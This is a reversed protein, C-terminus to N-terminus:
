QSITKIFGLSWHSQKRLQPTDQTYQSSFQQNKNWLFSYSVCITDSFYLGAIKNQVEKINLHTQQQSHCNKIKVLM